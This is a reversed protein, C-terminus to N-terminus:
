KTLILGNRFATIFMDMAVFDYGDTFSLTGEKIVLGIIDSVESMLIVTKANKGYKDYIYKYGVEMAAKKLGIDKEVLLADCYEIMKDVEAPTEFGTVIGAVKGAKKVVLTGTDTAIYQNIAGCGSFMFLIIILISLQRKM